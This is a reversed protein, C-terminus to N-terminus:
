AHSEMQKLDDLSNINITKIEPDIKKNLGALVKGWGLEIFNNVGQSKIWQISEVWRVSSSIQETINERIETSNTVANATCNQVVPIKADNFTIDNFFIDMGSEAPKMMSCHFPASVKLPILKLRKPPEAFIDKTINAALWDLAKKNGSVVIQGPSNFNASEIPSAGSKEMAWNNMKSTQEPTLGLVALMGGEGVPVAEQMLTGRKRVSKIGDSFSLSGAMVLSAYEGVSHGATFNFDIGAVESLVKQYCTSVLLLSPQTNHTLALDSESSEFCLKKFDLSIADSAEEFLNKAVKFNDFLFQGMGIQQSGQGPFIGAWM